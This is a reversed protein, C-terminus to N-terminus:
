RASFYRMGHGDEEASWGFAEGVELKQDFDVAITRFLNPKFTVRFRGSILGFEYM